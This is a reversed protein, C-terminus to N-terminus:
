PREKQLAAGAAAIREKTEEEQCNQARAQEVSLQYEDRAQGEQQLRELTQALHFSVEGCDPQEPFKEKIRHWKLAANTLLNQATLAQAANVEWRRWQQASLTGERPAPDAEGAFSSGRITSVDGIRLPVKGGGTKIKGIKQSVLILSLEQATIQRLDAIDLVSNSGLKFVAGEGFSLVTDGNEGTLITDIEDLLMDLQAREWREELGRRVKVEGGLKVIKVGTGAWVCPCVAVGALLLMIQFIRLMM